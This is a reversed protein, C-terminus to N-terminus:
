TWIDHDIDGMVNELEKKSIFNDGDLDIIKFAQEM